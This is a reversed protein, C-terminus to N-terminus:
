IFHIIALLATSPNSVDFQLHHLHQHDKAQQDSPTAAMVAAAAAAELSVPHHDLLSEMGHNQGSLLAM